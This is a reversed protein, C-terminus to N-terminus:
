RRPVLQTLAVGVYGVKGARKRDADLVPRLNESGEEDIGTDIPVDPRDEDEVGGEAAEDISIGADILVPGAVVDAIEVDARLVAEPRLSVLLRRRRATRPM